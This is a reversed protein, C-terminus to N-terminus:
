SSSYDRNDDVDAGVDWTSSFRVDGDNPNPIVVADSCSSFRMDRENPDADAGADSTSLFRWEGNDDVDARARFFATGVTWVLGVHTHTHTHTHTHAYTGDHRRLNGCRHMRTSTHTTNRIFYTTVWELLLSVVFFHHRFAKPFEQEKSGQRFPLANLIERCTPPATSLKVTLM